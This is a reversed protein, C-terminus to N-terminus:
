GAAKQSDIECLHHRLSGTLNHIRRILNSPERYTMVLRNIARTMAVYLLRTEDARDEGKKPIKGLNPILVPCFEPGKSSHMSVVKVADETGHCKGSAESLTREIRQAEATSRDIVAIDDLARGQGQENRIRELTCNQEQRESECGLLELVGSPPHMLVSNPRLAKPGEPVNFWCLYDDELKKLREDLRREVPTDFRCTTRAPFLQNM